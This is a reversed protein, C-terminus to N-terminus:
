EKVFKITQTLQNNEIINIVYIGTALNKIDITNNNATLKQDIKIKGTMDVLQIKVNTFNGTQINVSNKGPNPYINIVNKNDSLIYIISSVNEKGNLDKQILRYYTSQTTNHNFEYNNTQQSNGSISKSNLTAITSWNKSDNSAQLTFGANAEEMETSWHIVNMNNNRKGYFSSLEIPLIIATASSAFDGRLNGNILPFNSTTNMLTLAGTTLDIKGKDGNIFMGMMDGNDDFQLGTIECNPASNITTGIPVVSSISTTVDTNFVIPRGVITNNAGPYSIYGYMKRDIPSIALDQIGGDANYVNPYQANVDDLFTQLADRVDEDGMNLKTYGFRSPQIDTTTAVSPLTQIDKIYCLYGVVDSTDLDLPNSTGAQIAIKAIGSPKLGFSLYFYKGNEAVTGSNPSVFEIGNEGSVRLKGLNVITADAGIKFLNVDYNQSTTNDVALFRAGYVLNDIPNKGIGNIDFTNAALTFLSTYSNPNSNPATYITYDRTANNMGPKTIAVYETTGFATQANVAISSILLSSTLIFIKKM